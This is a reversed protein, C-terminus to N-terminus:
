EGGGRLLTPLLPADESGGGREAQKRLLRCRHRLCQRPVQWTRGPGRPCVPPRQPPPRSEAPDAAPPLPGAAGSPRTRPWPRLLWHAQSNPPALLGQSQPPPPPPLRPRSTPPLSTPERQSGPPPYIPSRPSPCCQPGCPVLATHGGSPAAGGRLPGSRCPGKSSLWDVDPRSAGLPHGRWARPAGGRRSAGGAAVGRASPPQGGLRPSDGDRFRPTSGRATAITGPRRHSGSNLAVVSFAMQLVGPGPCGSRSGLM